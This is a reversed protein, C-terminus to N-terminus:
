LDLQLWRVALDELDLRVGLAVRGSLCYRAQSVVPDQRAEQDM